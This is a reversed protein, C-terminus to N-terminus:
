FWGSDPERVHEVFGGSGFGAFIESKPHIEQGTRWSLGGIFARAGGGDKAGFIGFGLKLGLENELESFERGSGNGLEPARVGGDNPVEPPAESSAMKMVPLEVAALVDEGLRPNAPAGGDM